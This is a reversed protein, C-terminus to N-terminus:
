TYCSFNTRMVLYWIGMCSTITNATNLMVLLYLHLLTRFALNTMIINYVCLSFV